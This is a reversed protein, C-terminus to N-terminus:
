MIKRIIGSKADVEIKDGSRLIRTANRTGIVCPIGLERSVIAAHCTIGGEDTVIASAQRILPMFEPRTMVTVLIDGRKFKSFDREGLIIRAKGSVMGPCGVQGTIQTQKIKPEFINMLGQCTNKDLHVMKRSAKDHIGLFNHKTLKKYYRILKPSIPISDIEHPVCIAVDDWPVRSRRAIEHGLINLAFVTKQLMAKRQDRWFALLSFSELMRRPWGRLKYKKFLKSKDALKARHKKQKFHKLDRAVDHATLAYGQAYSCKLFYFQEAIKQLETSKPKHRLKRLALSYRQTAPLQSPALFVALDDETIQFNKAKLEKSILEGAHLDFIDLFIERDWFKEGLLGLKKNLWVLEKDSLEKPSIKRVRDITDTLERNGLSWKKHLRTLRKADRKIRGFELTSLKAFYDESYYGRMESASCYFFVETGGNLIALAGRMPGLVFYVRAHTQQRYWKTNRIKQVDIKM